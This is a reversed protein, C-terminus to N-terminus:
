YNYYKSEWINCSFNRDFALGAWIFLGTFMIFLHLTLWIRLYVEGAFNMVVNMWAAPVSLSILGCVVFLTGFFLVPNQLPLFLYKKYWALDHGWKHLLYYSGNPLQAFLLPDKNINELKFAHDPAMIKFHRVELGYKKEFAKIEAVAQYPFEAKFFSSDLFRLRYRIAIKRIDTISFIRERDAEDLVLNLEKEVETTKLRTLIKEHSQAAEELIGEVSELFKEQRLRERILEQEINLPSFIM